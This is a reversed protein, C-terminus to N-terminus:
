VLQGILSGTCYALYQGFFKLLPIHPDFNFRSRLGKPRALAFSNAEKVSIFGSGDEDMAEVIPQVYAVDIYDLVWEDSEKDAPNPTPPQLMSSDAEKDPLAVRNLIPTGSVSNDTRIHDRFTLVFVKAKM